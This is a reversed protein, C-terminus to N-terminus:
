MCSVSVYMISTYYLPIQRVRVIIITIVYLLVGAKIRKNYVVSTHVVGSDWHSYSSTFHSQCALLCWQVPILERYGYYFFTGFGVAVHIRTNGKHGLSNHKHRYALSNLILIFPVMPALIYYM